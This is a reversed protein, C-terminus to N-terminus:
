AGGLQGTGLLDHQGRRHRGRGPFQRQLAVQQEGLDREAPRPGTTGHFAQWRREGVAQRDRQTALVQFQTGPRQKVGPVGEAANAFPQQEVRQEFVVLGHQRVLDGQQARQAAEARCAGFRARDFGPQGTPDGKRAEGRPRRTVGDRELALQGVPARGVGVVRRTGLQEFPHERISRRHRGRRADGHQQGRAARDGAGRGRHAVAEEGGQIGIGTM